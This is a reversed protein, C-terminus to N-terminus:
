IIDLIRHQCTTIVCASLRTMKGVLRPKLANNWDGHGLCGFTGDGCTMIMGSDSVFVSFGDGAAVCRVNKGKLADLCRPQGIWPVLEGHGLEGREGAGWTFVLPEARSTLLQVCLCTTGCASSYVKM